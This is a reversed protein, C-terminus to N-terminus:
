WGRTGLISIAPSHAGLLGVQLSLSWSAGHDTSKYVFYAATTSSPDDRVLVFLEESVNTPLYGTVIYNADINTFDYVETDNGALDRKWLVAGGSAKRGYAVNDVPHIGYLLIDTYDVPKLKNAM